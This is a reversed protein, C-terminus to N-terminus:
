DGVSHYLLLYRPPKICLLSQCALTLLVLYLLFVVLESTISSLVVAVSDLLADLECPLYCISQM